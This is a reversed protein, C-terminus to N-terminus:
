AKDAHLMQFMGAGILRKRRTSFGAQELEPLLTGDLLMRYAEEDELLRHFAKVTFRTLAAQPLHYELIFLSGGSKLVRNIEQLSKRRDAEAIEHLGFSIFIKDFTGEPFPIDACSAQRFTLPLVKKAKKAAVGLSSHSLDIGTVAGTRGVREALLYTLTGTGCCADLVQEGEKLAAFDVLAKRFRGEGGFPLFLIKIIPDYLWAHKQWGKEACHSSSELVKNGDKLM